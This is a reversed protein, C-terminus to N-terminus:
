QDIEPVLARIKAMAEIAGGGHRLSGSRSLREIELLVAVAIDLAARERTRLPADLAPTV